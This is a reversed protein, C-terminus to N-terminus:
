NRSLKAWFLIKQSVIAATLQPLRATFVVTKNHNQTVEFPSIHSGICDANNNLMMITIIKVITCAGVLENAARTSSFLINAPCPLPLFEM